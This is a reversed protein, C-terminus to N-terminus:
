SSAEKATELSQRSETERKLRSLGDLQITAEDAELITLSEPLAPLVPLATLPNGSVDLHANVMPPLSTLGIPSLDLARAGFTNTNLM